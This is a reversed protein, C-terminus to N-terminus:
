PGIARRRSGRVVAKWVSLDRRLGYLVTGDHTFHVSLFSVPSDSPETTWTVGGDTSHALGIWVSGPDRPDVTITTTPMTTDHEGPWHLATWSDGGDDSRFLGSLLGGSATNLLRYITTPRSPAIAVARTELRVSSLPRWTVGGDSSAFAGTNNGGVLDSGNPAISLSWFGHGVNAIRTWTRGGDTSYGAWGTNAAYLWGPRQPNALLITPGFLDPADWREWTQTAKSFRWMKHTDAAYLDGVADVAIRYRQETDDEATIREWTRGADSSRFVRHANLIGHGEYATAYLTSADGPDLAIPYVTLRLPAPEGLHIATAAEPDSMPVRYLGRSTAVYIRDGAAAMMLTTAVLSPVADVRRWHLGLDDSLYLGFSQGVLFLRRTTTDIALQQGGAPLGEAAVRTWSAGANSSVLLHVVTDVATARGLGYRRSPDLPDAVVDFVPLEGSGRQWTRGADDTRYEGSSTTIFLRRPTGPDLSLFDVCKLSSSVLSWTEGRNTSKVVGGPSPDPYTSGCRMGIYITSPDQPDIRVSGPLVSSPLASLRKWTAGSDDSRHIQKQGIIYVIASDTPDVVLNEITPAPVALTTWSQGADWSRFLKRDAVAYVVHAASPSVAVATVPPYAPQGVPGVPTFHLAHAPASFLSLLLVLAVLPTRPM